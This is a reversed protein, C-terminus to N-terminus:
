RGDPDPPTEPGSLRLLDRAAVLSRRWGDDFDADGLLLLLATLLLAVTGITLYLGGLYAHHQGGPSTIGGFTAIGQAFSYAGLAMAVIGAVAV